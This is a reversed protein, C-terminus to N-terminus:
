WGWCLVRGRSSPPDVLSRSPRHQARLRAGLELPLDRRGDGRREGLAPLQEVSDAALRLPGQLAQVADDLLKTARELVYLAGLLLEPVKPLLQLPRPQVQRSHATLQNTGATVGGRLLPAGLRGATIQTGAPDLGVGSAGPEGIRALLEHVLPRAQQLELGLMAGQATFVLVGGALEGLSDVLPVPQPLERGLLLLPGVGQVEGAGLDLSLM